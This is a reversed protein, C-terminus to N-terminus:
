RTEYLRRPNPINDGVAIIKWGYRTESKSFEYLCRVAEFTVPCIAMSIKREGLVNEQLNGAVNGIQPRWSVKM